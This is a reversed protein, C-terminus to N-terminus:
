DTSAPMTGLRYGLLRDHLSCHERDLWAWILGVAFFGISISACIYRLFGDQWRIPKGDLRYVYVRWTKMALTQGSRCWSYVFYISAVGWLYAQLVYHRWGATADGFLVIFPWTAFGLIAMLLLGDYLLIALQRLWGPQVPKALRHHVPPKRNAKPM